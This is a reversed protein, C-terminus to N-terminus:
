IQTWVMTDCAWAGQVNKDFNVMANPPFVGQFWTSWSKVLRLHHTSLTSTSTNYAHITTWWHCFVRWRDRSGSRPTCGSPLKLHSFQLNSIDDCLSLWSDYYWNIDLLIMFVCRTALVNLLVDARENWIESLSYWLCFVFLHLHNCHIERKHICGQLHVQILILNVIIYIIYVDRAVFEWGLIVFFARHTAGMAERPHHISAGGPLSKCGFIRLFFCSFFLFCCCYRVEALLNYEHRGPFRRIRWM